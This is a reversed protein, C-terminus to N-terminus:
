SEEIRISLSNDDMKMFRVNKNFSKYNDGSNNNVFNSLEPFDNIYEPSIVIEDDYFRVKM